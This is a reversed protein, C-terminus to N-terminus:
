SCLNFLTVLLASQNSIIKLFSRGVVLLPRFALPSAALDVVFLSILVEEREVLLLCPCQNTAAAKPINCSVSKPDVQIQYVPLLEIHLFDCVFVVKM